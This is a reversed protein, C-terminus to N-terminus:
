LKSRSDHGAGRLMASLVAGEGGDTGEIEIQIGAERLRRLLADGMFAPTLVGGKIGMQAALTRERDEVLTLAAESAMKSTEAYGPEGGSVSVVVQRGSQAGEAVIVFRFWGRRRDRESPGEGPRPLRGGDRLSRIKEPPPPPRALKRATVEDTVMMREQYVFDPAGYGLESASRRVVRTNLRAMEFPATWAAGGAFPEAPTRDLDEDRPGVRGRAPTPGGGLLFPDDLMASAEPDKGMRLGSELTGGSLKGNMSVYTRISGCDEGYADRVRGAAYWAGLDSPVSDFGCMHFVYSGSRLAADSHLDMSRRVFPTEGTIDVYDTGCEACAEVLPLGHSLFPGSASLIVRTRRCMSRLASADASPAVIAEPYSRRPSAAGTSIAAAGPSAADAPPPALSRMREALARLKEPNRGAVAWRIPGRSSPRPRPTAASLRAFYEAILTGTFGTAGYITVDLDRDGRGAASGGPSHSSSPM